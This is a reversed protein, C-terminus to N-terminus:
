QRGEVEVQVGEERPEEARIYLYGDARLRATVRSGRRLRCSRRLTVEGDADQRSAVVELQGGSFSVRIDEPSFQRTDIRIINEDTAVDDQDDEAPPATPETTTPLEEGTDGDQTYIPLEFNIFIGALPSDDFPTDFAGPRCHWHRPGGRAWGWSWPGWSGHGQHGHGGHGRM